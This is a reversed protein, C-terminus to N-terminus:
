PTEVTDTTNTSTGVNVQYTPNIADKNFITTDPDIVTSDIKEITKITVSEGAAGGFLAKTGFFAILIVITAILAIMAIDSKKM